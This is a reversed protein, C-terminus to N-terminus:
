PGWMIFLLADNFLLFYWVDFLAVHRDIGHQDSVCVDRWMIVALVHLIFPVLWVATVSQLQLSLRM